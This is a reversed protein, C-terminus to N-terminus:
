GHPSGLGAVEARLWMAAYKGPGAKDKQKMRHTQRQQEIRDGPDKVICREHILVPSEMKMMQSRQLVKPAM